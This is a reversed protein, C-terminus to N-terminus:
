AQLEEESGAIMPSAETAKDEESAAVMPSSDATKDEESGEVEEESRTVLKDKAIDDLDELLEVEDVSKMEVTEGNFKKICDQTLTEIFDPDQRCLCCYKFFPDWRGTSSIVPVCVGYVFGLSALWGIAIGVMNPWADFGIPITGFLCSILVIILVYPSQTGVHAMLTVDCALASLVTTDSIPSMHDGAVSGSLVGAVVAYFILPNGNSAIYTPLLVLPFLISMTGWSTGTALAIMLSVLFSLTPLWEPSVGGVIFSAFLRDCGVATMVTGSAWALTLVVLALFIRSMGFLFSELSESVSMLFRPQVTVQNKRWPMMDWFVKPTPLTLRCTGPITVQTLYLLIMIWATGM